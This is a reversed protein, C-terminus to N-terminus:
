KGRNKIQDKCLFVLEKLDGNMIGDTQLLQPLISDNVFDDSDFPLVYIIGSEPDPSFVIKMGQDEFRAILGDIPTAYGSFEQEFAKVKEYHRPDIGPFSIRERIKGLERALFIKRRKREAREQEEIEGQDAPIEGFDEIM